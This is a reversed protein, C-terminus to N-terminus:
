VPTIISNAIAERILHLQIELHKMRRTNTTNICGQNDQHIIIPRKMKIMNIEECVQKFWLLESFLNTLSRYEAEASSLSVTPQKRTKWIVLNGNLTVLYGTVSQRTTRCNVWDADSYAIPPQDINRQYNLEIDNTGRLYRLVHLFAKWHQIGPKELFQSLTSVSHSLDPRTASCLYSLSGVASRYNSNLAQFKEKESISAGELHLNPILPTSVPKCNSMGYLELLSYIYHNQFFTIAEAKHTIKIGLMLDARGIMKTQLEKM